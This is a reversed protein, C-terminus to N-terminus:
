LAEGGVGLVRRANDCLILRQEEETLPLTLFRQLEEGPSWMPYDTGFFVRDAGFGHVMEVFRQPTVAFMTSSCDVYLNPMGYLKEVEPGWNQYAGFHAGIVTLQPFERLVPLLQEPNSFHYRPDGAHFLIPLQAEQCLEYMWRCHPDNIAFGQIDPHLKVGKLKLSLIEEVDGRPDASDPHLAGFGSFREPYAAVTGAIFRNISHVQHPTTAVSCLVTYDIGGKRDEELLTRVKGDRCSHGQYFKDTAGAAKEAIADPYVHCHTDIVYM